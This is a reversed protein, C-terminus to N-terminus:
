TKTVFSDIVAQRGNLRRQWMVDEFKTEYLSIEKLLEPSNELSFQKLVQLANCAAIKTIPNDDDITDDDDSENLSADEATNDEQEEFQEMLEEEWNDSENTNSSPITADANLFEEASLEHLNLENMFRELIPLDEFAEVIESENFCFGAKRFCNNIIQANVNEWASVIWRVADFLTVVKVLADATNATEMRNLICRLLMSKYHAKFCRIIGQDCPQLRATTNPPFFALKINSYNETPHCPANDLFLLVKRNSSILKVNWDSLFKEFVNSTMWAKKNAFWQVPLDKKPDLNRFCRPKFSKAIVLPKLKESGDSNCCFLVSVREKALKGGTCSAGKEVLTKKPLGRWFIGSEDCNFINSPSYGDCLSAIKERYDTVVAQNVGQAEGSMVKFLINYRKRFKELWGNSAVFSEITLRQAFEKAKAQLIPGDVPIGKSVAASLWQRCLEDLKADGVIRRRKGHSKEYETLLQQKRTENLIGNIQGLSCKFKEALKRQSLNDNDYQKIVSIKQELTLDNRKAM